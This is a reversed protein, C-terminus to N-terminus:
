KKAKAEAEARTVTVGVEILDFPLPICNGDDYCYGIPDSPGYIQGCLPCCKEDDEVKTPSPLRSNDRKREEEIKRNLELM